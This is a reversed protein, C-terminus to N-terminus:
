KIPFIVFIAVDWAFHSIISSSLDKTYFYTLGWVSDAIFTTIVWLPNLSITHIAADILAPLFVIAVSDKSLREALFNQLNGRFYAEFGIADLILILIQIVIEHSSILAYIASESTQQIGLPKLNQILINGGFFVAYLLLASLIGLGVTLASPRFLSRLDALWLAVFIMCATSTFVGYVFYPSGTPVFLLLMGAIVILLGLAQKKGSEEKTL